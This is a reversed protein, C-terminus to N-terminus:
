NSLDEMLSKVTKFKKLNGNEAEQMAELTKLNPIDEKEIVEVYPMMKLYELLIKAQQSNEEIKLYVM